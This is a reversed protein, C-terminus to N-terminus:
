VEGHICTRLDFYETKLFVHVLDLFTKLIEADDLACDDAPGSVLRM